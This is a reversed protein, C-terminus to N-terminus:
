PDLAAGVRVRDRDIERATAANDDRHDAIPGKGARRDADARLWMGSARRPHNTM